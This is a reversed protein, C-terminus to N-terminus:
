INGHNKYIGFLAYGDTTSVQKAELLIKLSDKTTTATDVEFATSTEDAFEVQLVM